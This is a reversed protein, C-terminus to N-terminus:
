DGMLDVCGLFDAVGTGDAAYGELVAADFLCACQIDIQRMGVFAGKVACAIPNGHGLRVLHEAAAHREYM